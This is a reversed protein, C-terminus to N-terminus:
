KKYLEVRNKMEQKLDKGAEHKLVVNVQKGSKEEIIAVFADLHKSKLKDDDETKM